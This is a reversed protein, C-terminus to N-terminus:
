RPQVRWSALLLLCSLAIGTAVGVLCGDRFGQWYVVEVALEIAERIAEPLGLWGDISTLAPM